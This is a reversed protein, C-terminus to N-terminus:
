MGVTCACQGASSPWTTPGHLHLADAHGNAQNCSGDSHAWGSSAPPLAEDRGHWQPLQYLDPARSFHLKSTPPVSCHGAVQLAAPGHLRLNRGSPFVASPVHPLHPLDHARRCALLSLLSFTFCPAILEMRAAVGAPLLLPARRRGEMPPFDTMRQIRNGSAKRKRGTDPLLRYMRFNETQNDKLEVIDKLGNLACRFNIKWTTADGEGKYKGTHKAWARFLAADREANYGRKKAHIWPVRFITKEEDVWQLGDYSSSNIQEILWDKMRQPRENDSESGGKSLKTPIEDGTMSSETAVSLRTPFPLEVIPIQFRIHRDADAVANIYYQGVARPLDSRDGCM